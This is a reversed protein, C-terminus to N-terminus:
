TVYMIKRIIHMSLRPLQQQYPEITVNRLKSKAPLKANQLEINEKQGVKLFYVVNQFEDRESDNKTSFSTNEICLYSFLKKLIFIAKM